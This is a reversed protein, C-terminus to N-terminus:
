RCCYNEMVHPLTITLYNCGGKKNKQERIIIPPSAFDDTQIWKLIYKTLFFLTKKKKLNFICLFNSILM